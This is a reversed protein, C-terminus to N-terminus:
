AGGRSQVLNVVTMRDDTDRLVLPEHAGRWGLEMFDTKLAGLALRATVASVEFGFPEGAYELDIEDEFDAVGAAAFSLTNAEFRLRVYQGKEDSVLAARSLAAGLESRRLAIFTEADRQLVRPWDPFRQDITKTTISAGESEFRVMGRTASFTVTEVGDLLRLIAPIIAGPITEAGEVPQFDPGGLAFLVHGTTAVARPSGDAGIWFSVGTIYARTQERSACPLARSLCEAVEASELTTVADWKRTAFTPYDKAPLVPLVYRSRGCQLSARSPAKQLALTAQASQDAGKLANLLLESPVTFAGAGERECPLTAWGEADLNNAVLRTTEGTGDILVHSLIPITGRALTLAAVRAMASHFAGATLSLQM